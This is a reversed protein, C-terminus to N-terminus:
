SDFTLQSIQIGYRIIVIKALLILGSNQVRLLCVSETCKQVEEQEQEKKEEEKGNKAIKRRKPM